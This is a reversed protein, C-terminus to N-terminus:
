LWVKRGGVRLGLSRHPGSGAPVGGLDRLHLICIGDGFNFWHCRRKEGDM